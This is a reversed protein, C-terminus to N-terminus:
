LTSVPDRVDFYRARACGRGIISRRRSRPRPPPLLDVEDDPGCPRSRGRRTTVTSSNSRTTPDTSSTSRTRTAMSSSTSRTTLDTPVLSRQEAGRVRRRPRDRGRLRPRPLGRRLIQRRSGGRGRGRRHRRERGRSRREWLWSSFTSSGRYHVRRFTSRSAMVVLDVKRRRIQPRPQGRGHGRRLPQVGGRPRARPRSRKWLDSSCILSMWPGHPPPRVGDVSRIVLDVEEVATLALDVERGDIRRRPPGRERGRPTPGGRPRPSLTSRTTPRSSLTSREDEPRFVLDVKNVAM